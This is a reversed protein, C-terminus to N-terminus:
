SNRYEILLQRQQDLHSHFELSLGVLARGEISMVMAM